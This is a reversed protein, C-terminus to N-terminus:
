SCEELFRIPMYFSSHMVTGENKWSMTKLYISLCKNLYSHAMVIEYDSVAATIYRLEKVLLM